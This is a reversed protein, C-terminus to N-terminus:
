ICITLTHNCLFSKMNGASNGNLLLMEHSFIDEM